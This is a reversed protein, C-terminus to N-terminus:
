MVLVLLWRDEFFQVVEHFSAYVYQYVVLYHTSPSYGQGLHKAAGCLPVSVFFLDKVAGCSCEGRFRLGVLSLFPCDRRGGRVRETWVAVVLLVVCSVFFQHDLLLSTRGRVLKM